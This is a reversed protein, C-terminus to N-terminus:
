KNRKQKNKALTIIQKWLLKAAVTGYGTYILLGFVLQSVAILSRSVAVIALPFRIFLGLPIIVCFLLLKHETLIIWLKEWEKKKAYEIADAIEDKFENIYNNFTDKIVEVDKRVSDFIDEAKNSYYKEESTTNRGFKDYESRKIPDILIEYASSIKQFKVKASPDNPNLDPHYKKAAKFYAIKIENKTANANINLLSYPCDDNKSKRNYVFKRISFKQGIRKMEDNEIIKKCNFISFLSVNTANIRYQNRMLCGLQVSIARPHSLCNM